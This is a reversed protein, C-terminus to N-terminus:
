EGAEDEDDNDEEAAYEEATVYEPGEEDLVWLGMFSEHEPTLDEDIVDGKHISISSYEFELKLDDALGVLEDAMRRTYGIVEAESGFEETLTDVEANEDGQSATIMVITYVSM